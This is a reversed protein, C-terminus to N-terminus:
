APVTVTVDVDVVVLLVVVVVVADGVVVVLVIAVVPQSGIAEWWSATGRTLYPPLSLPTVPDLGTGALGRVSQVCALPCGRRVGLRASVCDAVTRVSAGIVHFALTGTM